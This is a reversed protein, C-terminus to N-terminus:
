INEHQKSNEKLQEIKHKLDDLTVVICDPVHEPKIDDLHPLIHNAHYFNDYSVKIGVYDGPYLKFCVTYGELVLENIKNLIEM